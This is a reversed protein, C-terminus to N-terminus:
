GGSPRNATEGPHLGNVEVKKWTWLCREWPVVVFADFLWLISDLGEGVVNIGDGHHRNTSGAIQIRIPM